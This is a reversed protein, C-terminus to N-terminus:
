PKLIKNVEPIEGWSTTFNKSLYDRRMRWNNGTPELVRKSKTIGVFLSTQESGALCLDGLMVSGKRYKIGKKFEQILLSQVQGWIEEFDNTKRILKKAFNRSYYIEEKHRDNALHLIFYGTSLGESNLKEVVKKTYLHVAKQVELFDSTSYGFSRGTSINKRRKPEIQLPICQKGSLEMQTRLGTVTLNKKVLDSPLDVFQQITFCNFGALKKEAASGIGWVDSIDLDPSKQALFHHPDSIFYVGNGSKSIKNALKALTKTPAAGISIPIGTWKWVMTKVHCLFNELDIQPVHDLDMFVEDISYVELVPIFERIAQVVRESMDAYLTYNSSFLQIEKETILDKIDYIKEGMRIGLDKAEKSRAIANGDNNSLVLVPKNRVSPNFVRECSAYFNNCDAIGIIKTM